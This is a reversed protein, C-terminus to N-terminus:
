LGAVRLRSKEILNRTDFISPQLKEKEFLRDIDRRNNFIENNYENRISHHLEEIRKEETSNKWKKSLRKVLEKYIEPKYKKYFLIGSTCLFISDKRQMRISLNTVPCIQSSTKIKSKAQSPKKIDLNVSKLPICLRNIETELCKGVEKQISNLKYKEVLTKFKKLTADYQNRNTRKLNHWFNYSIGKLLLEKHLKDSINIDPNCTILRNFDSLLENTLLRIKTLDTLDQLTTIKLNKLHVMKLVKIEVRLINQDKLQFQESKDYIKFIFRQRSNQYYNFHRERIINFPKGNYMILTELFRNVKFPLVVNIGIELNHLDARILQVKYVQTFDQLVTQLNCFTFRNYNHIGGNFAKHFSGKVTLIKERKVTFVFGPELATRRVVEGNQNITLQWTLVNGFNDPLPTSIKFGDIMKKGKPAIRKANIGFNPHMLM